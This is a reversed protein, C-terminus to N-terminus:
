DADHEHTEEAPARDIAGGTRREPDYTPGDEGIEWGPAPGAPTAGEELADAPAKGDAGVVHGDSSTAPPPPYDRTPSRLPAEKANSPSCSWSAGALALGACAVRLWAASRHPVRHSMCWKM